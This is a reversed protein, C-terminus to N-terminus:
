KKQEVKFQIPLQFYSSVAVGNSSGPKWKDMLKVVRIAEKDLSPHVKKIVTVNDISGNTKVVFEVMVMGSANDDLADQPYQIKENLFKMLAAMGGPYEAKIDPFREPPPPPAVVSDLGKPAAIPETTGERNKKDFDADENKLEENTKMVNQTVEEDKKIVIATVQVTKKIEPPPPLELQPIEEKPKEVEDDMTNIVTTQVRSKEKFDDSTGWDIKEVIKPLFVALLGVFFVIVIAKIHRNSSDNRLDYAGYNRNKNKFAIELWEPSYLDFDKIIKM